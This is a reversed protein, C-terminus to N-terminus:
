SDLRLLVVNRMAGIRTWNGPLNERLRKEEWDFILAYFPLGANGAYARLLQFRDATMLDLRVPFRQQYFYIAGSLQASAVLANPPIRKRSWSNAHVYTIEDNRVELVGYKRVIRMEVALAIVILVAAIVPKRATADRLVLMAGILLAPFAPLLFRTYWWADYAWYFCYFAFFLAFWIVLLARHWRAVRRDFAVFLGLPFVIPTHLRTMWHVYHPFREYVFPWHLMDKFSGYGTMLASGFITRNILMLPIAFPIAAAVAVGLRAFTRGGSNWMAMALPIAVLMNTPRVWVGIAFAVGALIAYRIGDRSRMAFLVALTAWLAAVVDSMPQIAIFVFPPSVALLAAAAVNFRDPLGFERGLFFTAIVCLLAALPTVLFPAHKWKLLAGLPAMHLPFGPPYSPAMMRRVPSDVFGLPHFYDDWESPLQLADLPTVRLLLKGETLMRAFNLYGSSDAGGAAFCTYRILAAEYLLAAAFLALMVRRSVARM